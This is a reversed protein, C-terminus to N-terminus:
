IADDGTSGSGPHEFEALARLMPQLPRQGATTRADRLLGLGELRITSAARSVGYQQMLHSTVFQYSQLNCAQNAVYLAGFGRDSIELRRLLLRFDEVFNNRPMLLSGAFYNAQFEMRSIDTGDAVGKRNLVFDHEDCTERSMYDAHGLLHHALEHALTFRERGNNPQAQTFVQIELPEFRIRGLVPNLADPDTPSVGLQVKLNCREKELACIAHLHVQGTAYDIKNLVDAAHTELLDKERFPVQPVLRSRPNALKSRQASTLPTDLLFDEIFDWLSNTARSPSQLYLDFVTSMFDQRSLGEEVQFGADAETARAGASPSRRLEWKFNTADFYRLLGIGKSKAFARTGSQFSATSAIVAKANAAAVQQVKTFFEEADDVPVAHTYRKCEILMLMSYDTAGPLYVEISIDFIIKEGSDKSYYSKKRFLKCNTKKAFFRDAEIETAFLDYIARELSDGARTTSM